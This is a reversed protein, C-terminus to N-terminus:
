NNKDLDRLFLINGRGKKVKEILGRREMDAIILSMKAESYGMKKRLNKQTIRGGEKRIISLTEELDEPLEELEVPGKGSGEYTESTEQTVGTEVDSLGGEGSSFQKKRVILIASAAAVLCLILVVPILLNSGEDDGDGVGDGDAAVTENEEDVSFNLDEPEEPTIDSLPPFLVLDIKYNGEQEITINKQAYLAVSGQKYYVAELSYTGRSLDIQYKGDESIMHQEPTTNVIIETKPLPELTEWSYVTGHIVAAGGVEVTILLVLTLLVAKWCLKFRM